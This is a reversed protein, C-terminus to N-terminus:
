NYNEVFYQIPNAQDNILKTDNIFITSTNYDLNSEKEELLNVIGARGNIKLSNYVKYDAPYIGINRKHQINNNSYGRFIEYDQRGIVYTLNLLSSINNWFEYSSHTSKLSDPAGSMRLLEQFDPCTQLTDRLSERAKTAEKVAELESTIGKANLHLLNYINILHKAINKKNIDPSILQTRLLRHKLSIDAAHLWGIITTDFYCSNASWEFFARSNPVDCLIGGKQKSIKRTKRASKLSRKKVM